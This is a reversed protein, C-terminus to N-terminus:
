AAEEVEDSEEDSRRPLAGLALGAVTYTAAIALLAEPLLRAAATVYCFVVVVAQFVNFAKSRRVKLKPLHFPSVMLAGLLLMLAPLGRALLAADGSRAAWTLYAGGVLAGALTSPMGRFTGATSSDPTVNYLALRLAACVVYVAAAVGALEDLYGPGAAYALAAPAVGFAVLDVLSDLQLGFDSCADLLRAAAGDAKDLLVCWMVLWAAWEVNGRLAAFVSIIAFVLSLCTVLNPVVYRLRGM